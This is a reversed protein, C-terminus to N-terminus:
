EDDNMLDALSFEEEFEVAADKGDWAPVTTIQVSYGFRFFLRAVVFFVQSRAKARLLLHEKWHGSGHGRRGVWVVRM